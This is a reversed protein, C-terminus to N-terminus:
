STFLIGYIALFAFVNVKQWVGLPAIFDPHLNLNIPEGTFGAVVIAHAAPLWHIFSDSFPLKARASHEPFITVM